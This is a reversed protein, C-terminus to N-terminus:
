QDVIDITDALPSALLQSLLSKLNKKPAKTCLNKGFDVIKFNYSVLSLSGPVTGKYWSDLIM